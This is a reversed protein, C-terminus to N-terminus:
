PLIRHLIALYMSSLVSIIMMPEPKLGEFVKFAVIGTFFSNTSTFFHVKDLDLPRELQLRVPEAVEDIAEALPGELPSNASSNALRDNTKFYKLLGCAGGVAVVEDGPSVTSTHDMSVEALSGGKEVVGAVLTSVERTSDSVNKLREETFGLGL